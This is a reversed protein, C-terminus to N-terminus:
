GPKSVPETPIYRAPLSVRNTKNGAKSFGAFLRNKRIFKSPVKGFSFNQFAGLYPFFICTGMLSIMVFFRSLFSMPSISAKASLMFRNPCIHGMTRVFLLIRIEPPRRRSAARARPHLVMLATM